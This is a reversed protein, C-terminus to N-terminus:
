RRPAKAAERYVHFVFRPIRHWPGFATGGLRGAFVRGSIVLVVFLTAYNAVELVLLYLERDIWGPVWTNAALDVISTLMSFQFIRYLWMEWLHLAIFYIGACVLFDAAAMVAEPYPYGTMEYADSFLLDVVLAAVWITGRWNLSFLSLGFAAAAVLLLLAEYLSM